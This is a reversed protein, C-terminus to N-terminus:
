QAVIRSLPLEGLLGARKLARRIRRYASRPGQRAYCACDVHCKWEGVEEDYRWEVSRLGLSEDDILIGCVKDALASLHPFALLDNM